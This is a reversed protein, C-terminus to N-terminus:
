GAAGQPGAPLLEAAPNQFQLRGAAHGPSDGPSDGPSNRPGRRLGQRWCRCCGGLGTGHTCSVRFAKGLFQPERGGGGGSCLLGKERRTKRDPDLKWASRPREVKGGRPKEAPLSAKGCPLPPRPLTPHPPAPCPLPLPPAPRPLPPAPCSLPLPPAPAPRAPDAQM